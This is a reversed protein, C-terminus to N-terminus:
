GSHDSIIYWKGEIKKLLIDFHGSLPSTTRDVIFKGVVFYYEPSLQKRYSIEFSLKGMAHADPFGKQYVKYINDWGWVVRTRGIMMISDSKPYSVNMYMELDGKNWADIQDNLLKNVAATEDILKKSFSKQAYLNNLMMGFLFLLFFRQKMYEFTAQM